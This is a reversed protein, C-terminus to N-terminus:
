RKLVNARFTTSNVPNSMITTPSSVNNIQVSNGSTERMTNILAGTNTAVQNNALLIQQMIDNQDKLTSHLDDINDATDNQANAREKDKKDTTDIIHEAINKGVDEAASTIGTKDAVKEGGQWGFYAGAAGGLFGGIQSGIAAGPVAGVGGALLGIGGGILGGIIEGAGVGVATGVEAGVLGGATRAAFKGTRGGKIDAIQKDADAKSILGALQKRRIENIEQSGEAYEQVGSVAVAAPGLFKTAGKLAKATKGVTALTKGAAESTAETEKLVGNIKSNATKNLDKTSNTLKETEAKFKERTEKAAGLEDKLRAIEERRYISEEHSAQIKRDLNDIETKINEDNTKNYIRELNFKKDYNLNREKLAKAEEKNLSSVQKEFDSQTKQLKNALKERDAIKKKVDESEIAAKTEENLTSKTKDKIKEEKIGKEEKPKGRFVRSLKKLGLLSLIGEGIAALPSDLLGPKKGGATNKFANLINTLTTNTKDFFPYLREHYFIEHDAALIDELEQRGKESFQIDVIDRILPNKDKQKDSQRKSGILENATFVPLVSSGSQLTRTNGLKVPKVTDSKNATTNSAQNGKNATYLGKLSEAISRLDEANNFKEEVTSQLTNISATQKDQNKEFFRLLVDNSSGLVAKLDEIDISSAPM